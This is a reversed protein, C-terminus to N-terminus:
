KKANSLGFYYGTQYGSMYWSMLMSYLADEQSTSAAFPNAVEPRKQKLLKLLPPPPPPPPISQSFPLGQFQDALDEAKSTTAQPESATEATKNIKNKQPPRRLESLYKEEENLYVDYRILCKKDRFERGKTPTKPEFIKVIKAPYELGDETYVALCAHGEQWAQAEGETETQTTVEIDEYEGEQEYDEGDEGEDEDDDSDEDALENALTKIKASDMTGKSDLKSSIAKKIHRISKDYAKILARDDWVDDDQGDKDGRRFLVVNDNGSMELDSLFAILAVLLFLKYKFSFSFVM